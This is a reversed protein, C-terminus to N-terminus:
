LIHKLLAPIGRCGGGLGPVVNADPCVIGPLIVGVGIGLLVDPCFMGPLIVGVGVGVTFFILCGIWRSVGVGVGPLCM